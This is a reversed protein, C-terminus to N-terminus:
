DEYNSSFRLIYFIDENSECNDLVNELLNDSDIM